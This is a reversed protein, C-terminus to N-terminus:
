KATRVPIPTRDPTEGVEDVFGDVVTAGAATALSIFRRMARDVNEGWDAGRRFRTSAESPLNLRKVTRSITPPDWWAMELLVDTTDDSIETTAGGMVGALSVIA